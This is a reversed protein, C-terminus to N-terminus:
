KSKKILDAIIASRIPIIHNLYKINNVLLIKNLGGGPDPTKGGLLLKIITETNKRINKNKFKLKDLNENLYKKRYENFKKCKLLLHEVDEKVNENCCICKKKDLNKLKLKNIIEESFKFCGTRIKTLAIIGNKYKNDIEIKNLHKGSKIKYKEAFKRSESKKRKYIRKENKIKVEKKVEKVSKTLDIKYRKLWMKTLTSWTRTRFKINDKSEIIDKIYGSSNQWKILGRTRAIAAKMELPKIDLEEYARLRCFNGKNLIMKLSNDLVQKLKILRSERMGFIEVGYTLVPILYNQIIMKKILIPISNNVLNNEVCKLSKIGKSVRYIKM